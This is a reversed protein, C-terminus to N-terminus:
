YHFHGKPNVCKEAHAGPLAWNLELVISRPDEGHRDEIQIAPPVTFEYLLIQVKSAGSMQILM